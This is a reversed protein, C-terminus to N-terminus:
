ETQDNPQDVYTPDQPLSGDDAVAPENSYFKLTINGGDDLTSYDEPTVLIYDTDDSIQYIYNGGANADLFLWENGTGGTYGRNVVIGTAPGFKLYGTCNAPDTFTFYKTASENVTNWAVQSGGQVDQNGAGDGSITLVQDYAFKNIISINLFM